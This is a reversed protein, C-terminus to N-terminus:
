YSNNTNRRNQGPKLEETMVWIQASNAVVANVILWGTVAVVISVRWSEPIPTFYLVLLTGLIPIGYILGALRSQSAIDVDGNKRAFHNYM